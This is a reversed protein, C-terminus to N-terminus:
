DIYQTFHMNKHECEIDTHQGFLHILEFTELIHNFINILIFFYM